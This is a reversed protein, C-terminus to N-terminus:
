IELESSRYDGIRPVFVVQIDLEECIEKEAYNDKYEAGIVHVDPNIAKIFEIPNEETFIHVGSVANPGLDMLDEVRQQETRHPERHKYERIYEDSNIGVVTYGGLQYCVGLLFTHGAHLGDFCGNTTILRM